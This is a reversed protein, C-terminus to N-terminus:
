GDAAVWSHRDGARGTPDSWVRGEAVRALEAPTGDFRVEGQLVVLVRQCFAAVEATHHTSLVVTGTRGHASLISRLHMRQDPDLGSAPEDLVLLEPSGLLAAALA